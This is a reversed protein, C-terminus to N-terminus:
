ILHSDREGFIYIMKGVESRQDNKEKEQFVTRMSINTIIMGDRLNGELIAKVKQVREETKEALYSKQLM